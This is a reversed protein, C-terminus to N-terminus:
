DAVPCRPVSNTAAVLGAIQEVALDRVEGDPEHPGRHSFVVTTTMAFPHSGAQTDPSGNANTFTVDFQELGFAAMAPSTFLGAGLVAAVTVASLLRFILRSM